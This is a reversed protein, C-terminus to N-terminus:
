RLLFYLLFYLWVWLGLKEMLLQETRDLNKITSQLLM